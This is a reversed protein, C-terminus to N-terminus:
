QSFPYFFVSIFLILNIKIVVIFLSSIKHTLFKYSLSKSCKKRRTSLEGHQWKHTVYCSLTPFYWKKVNKRYTYKLANRETDDSLRYLTVDCWICSLYYIMVYYIVFCLIPIPFSHSLLFIIFFILEFPFNNLHPRILSDEGFFKRPFYIFSITQYVLHWRM